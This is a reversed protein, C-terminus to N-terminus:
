KIILGSLGRKSGSRWKEAGNDVLMKIAKRISINIKHKVLHEKVECNKVRDSNNCTMTFVNNLKCPTEVEHKALLDNALSTLTSTNRQNENILNILTSLDLPTPPQSEM